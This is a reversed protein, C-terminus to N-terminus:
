SGGGTMYARLLAAATKALDKRPQTYKGNEGYNPSFGQVSINGGGLKGAIHGLVESATLRMIAEAVDSPCSAYGYQYTIRINREGKYFIPIYSSENFNAKAKLVGEEAIVQMASPTLYYLNSDVNTYSISILQVIPRRRLIMLPSGTGDYYETVTQIGNFKQRTIREIFPLILNDLRDQIWKDSVVCYYTVTIAADTDTATAPASMTIQGTEGVIDVSAIQAAAPIGTGFLNMYKALNRTDIGTIIASGDTLTGVLSLTSEKELGYGELLDRIDKPEPLGAANM